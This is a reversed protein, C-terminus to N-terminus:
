SRPQWKKPKEHIQYRAGELLLMLEAHSITKIGKEKWGQIMAGLAGRSMKKYLLWVGTDDALLIKVGNRRGNLFVIADGSWLDLGLSFAEGLLSQHQKRFDIPYGALHIRKINWSFM